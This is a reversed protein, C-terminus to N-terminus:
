LSDLERKLVALESDIVEIEVRQILSQSDPSWDIDDANVLAQFQSTCDTAALDASAQPGLIEEEMREFAAMSTNNSLRSVSGQLCSQAAAIDAQAKLMNTQARATAVQREADVLSRNLTAIHETQQTLQRKLRLVTINCSQMEQEARRVSDQQGHQTARQIHQGWINAQSQVEAIQLELRQKGVNATAM